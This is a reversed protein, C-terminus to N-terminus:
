FVASVGMSPIIPLQDVRQYKLRDFYFVNNRNYVNIISLSLEIKAKEGLSFTKKASVDLRHFYPLRGGNLEKDYVV